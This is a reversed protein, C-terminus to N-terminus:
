FGGVLNSRKIFNIWSADTFVRNDLMINLNQMVCHGGIEGPYFIPRPIKETAQVRENRKIYARGINETLFQNIYAIDFSIDNNKCYRKIEQVFAINLGYWATSILKGLEVAKVDSYFSGTAFGLKGFYEIVAYKDDKKCCGINLSFSKLDEYFALKDINHTGRMPVHFLSFAPCREQIKETTGPPITTHIFVWKKGGRCNNLLDDLYDVVQKYFTDRQSFPFCIHIVDIHVPETEWHDWKIDFQYLNHSGHQDILYSIADGIEGIGIVAVNLM